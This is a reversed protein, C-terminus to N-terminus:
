ESGQPRISGMERKVQGHNPWKDIGIVVVLKLSVFAVIETYVETDPTKYFHTKAVRDIQSKENGNQAPNRQKYFPVSAVLNIGVFATALLSCLLFLWM